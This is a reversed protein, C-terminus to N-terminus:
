NERVFMKEILVNKVVANGLAHNCINQGYSKLFNIDKVKEPDLSGVETLLRTFSDQLIVLNDQIKAANEQSDTEFVYFINALSEVRNNSYISIVLSDLKVFLSFPLPAKKAPSSPSPQPPPPKLFFYWAAGGGGGILILVILIILLKKM